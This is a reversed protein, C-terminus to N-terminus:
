KIKVYVNDPVIIDQKNKINLKYQLAKSVLHTASTGNNTLLVHKVNLLNQLHEQVINLYKGKSLWGSDIANYAYKLISDSLYPKYIPIM